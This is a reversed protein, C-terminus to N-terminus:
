MEVFKLQKQYTYNMQEKFLRILDDQPIVCNVTNYHWVTGNSTNMIFSSFDEFMRWYVEPINFVPHPEKIYFITDAGPYFKKFYYFKSIMFHHCKVKILDMDGSKKNKLDLKYPYKRFFDTNCLRYDNELVTNYLNLYYNNFECDHQSYFFTGNAIRGFDDYCTCNKYSLIESFDPIYCDADVYLFNDQKSALYLRLQDGLLSMGCNHELVYKSHKLKQIDPMVDDLTYIKKHEYKSICFNAIPNEIYNSINLLTFEQMQSSHVMIM